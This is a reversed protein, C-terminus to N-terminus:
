VAMPRCGAFHFRAVWNLNTQDFFWCEKMRIATPVTQLFCPLISAATAGRDFITEAMWNQGWAPTMKSCSPEMVRKQDWKRVLSGKMIVAM